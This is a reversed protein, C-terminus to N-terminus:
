RLVRKSKSWETERQKWSILICPEVESWNGAESGGDGEESPPAFDDLTHRLQLLFFFFHSLFSGEHPLHM